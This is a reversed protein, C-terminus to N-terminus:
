QKVGLIEIASVLRLEEEFYIRWTHWDGTPPNLWKVRYVQHSTVRYGTPEHYMVEVVFGILPESPKRYMTDMAKQYPITIDWDWYGDYFSELGYYWLPRDGETVLDGVRFM